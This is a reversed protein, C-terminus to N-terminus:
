IQSESKMQMLLAELFYKTGWNPCAFPEYRGWIPNSGFLAGECPWKSNNVQLKMLYKNMLSAADSFSSDQEKALRQWAISMQAGGTTIFAESGKWNEDYRGSLSGNKLFRDRLITAPKLASQIFQNEVLLLGTEILGDLTYAITHLIPRDNHQITNDADEFWGNGKQKYDMVWRCQLLASERYKEKKTQKYVAALPAAVYTDYVRVRNMYVSKSWYGEHEQLAVLWDAAKLASDLYKQDQFYEYAALMGRIVQATNFVIPPRKQEVYGGPWGGGKDQISLLWDLAMRASEEAENKRDLLMGAELIVPVIYGSTEPYSSTWSRDLYWTAFGNDSGSKQSQMLWDFAGNASHKLDFENRSLNGSLLNRGEASALLKWFNRGYRLASQWM